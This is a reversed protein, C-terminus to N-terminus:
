QYYTINNHIVMVSGSGTTQISLSILTDLLNNTIVSLGISSFSIIDPIAPEYNSEIALSIFCQPIDYPMLNLGIGSIAGYDPMGPELNCDIALSLQNFDAALAVKIKREITRDMMGNSYQGIGVGTLPSNKFEGPYALLIAEVHQMDSNGITLDGHTILLDYNDNLLIDQAM